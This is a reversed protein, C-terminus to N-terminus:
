RWCATGHLRSLQEVWREGTWRTCICPAEFRSMWKYWDCLLEDTWRVVVVYTRHEPRIVLPIHLTEVVSRSVTSEYGVSAGVRRSLGQWSCCPDPKVAECRHRANGSKSACITYPRMQPRQTHRPVVFRRGHQGGIDLGDFERHVARGSPEPRHSLQIAAWCRGRFRTPGLLPCYCFECFRHLLHAHASAFIGCYSDSM